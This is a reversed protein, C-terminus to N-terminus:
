NTSTKKLHAKSKLHRAFSSSLIQMNCQECKKTARQKAQEDEFVVVDEPDKLSLEPEEEKIIELQNRYRNKIDQNDLDIVIYGYPKNWSKNCFERFTNIDKFDISANSDYFVHNVDTPSLKFLVIFNANARITQRPLKYFNQSIYICDINNHRSRTYFNDAPTQNKDCMIDDFVILNKNSADFSKPDPIEETNEFMEITIDGKEDDDLESALAQCVHEPKDDLNNIMENHKLIKIIHEKALSNEFGAKLIKYEPQHLSRGFLTLKNYDLLKDELLMRMLLSTKGCGSKGVILARFSDPVMNSHNRNKVKDWYYKASM